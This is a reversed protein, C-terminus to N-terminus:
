RVLQPPERTLRLQLALLGIIVVLMLVAIASVVRTQGERFLVFIMISIPMSTASYLLLVVGLSRVADVCLIVWGAVFGRKVLNLVVYVFTEAWTAGHIRSSEELEKAIQVQTGVMLRVALPLVTTIVAIILLWITGYLQGPLALYAWLMAVSLVIGPVTWPVWTLLDLIHRGPFDTRVIVYATVAALLMGITAVGVGLLLTNQLMALMRSQQFVVQYNALSLSDLQITARPSLSNLILVALPLLFAVAFFVVCVGFIPWRWIRLRMPQTRFSKGSVTTYRRSGLLRGQLVAMVFTLVLLSVALSMAPPYKVPFTNLRDFILTTFVYIHAPAGLFLETEFSEMFRILSLIFVGVVAPLMLPLTVHFFTDLRSAGSMTSSEELTADMANFAPVLLMIKISVFNLVGVWVIGGYSYVNFPGTRVGFTDTWWQNLLGANPSALLSWAITLVLPPIAFPAILLLQLVRRHPVDTRTLVWAFFIALSVSLVARIISLGLTNAFASYTDISTYAELWGALSPQAAEGPPVGAISGWLLMVLPFLVLFGILVTLLWMLATALSPRAMSVPLRGREIAITGAM